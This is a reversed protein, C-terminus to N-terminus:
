RIGPMLWETIVLIVPSEVEALVEFVEKASEATEL